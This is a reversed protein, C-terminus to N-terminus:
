GGIFTHTFSIVLTLSSIGYLQDNGIWIVVYIINEFGFILRNIMYTILILFFSNTIPTENIENVGLGAVLLHKLEVHSSRRQVKIPQKMWCSLLPRSFGKDLQFRTMKLQELQEPKSPIISVYALCDFCIRSGIELPDQLTAPSVFGKKQFSYIFKPWDWVSIQINRWIVELNGKGEEIIWRWLQGYPSFPM